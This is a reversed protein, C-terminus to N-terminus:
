DPYDHNIECRQAEGSEAIDILVSLICKSLFGADECDFVSEAVEDKYHQRRGAFTEDTRGEKGVSLGKPTMSEHVAIDMILAEGVDSSRVHSYDAVVAPCFNRLVPFGCCAIFFSEEVSRIPYDM